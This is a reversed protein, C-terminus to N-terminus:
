LSKKMLYCTLGYKWKPVSAVIKFGQNGFFDRAEPFYTNLQIESIKFNKAYSIMQELLMKGLGKKRQDKEIYISDIWLIDAYLYGVIGGLTKENEQAYITHIKPRGIFGSLSELCGILGQSIEENFKENTTTIFNIEQM